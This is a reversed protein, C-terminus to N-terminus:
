KLSVPRLVRMAANGLRYVMYGQLATETAKGAIKLALNPVNALTDGAMETISDIGGEAVDGIMGSFYTNAIVHAMLVLNKDWSPKLSYIELLEKLLALSSSLVILRDMLPFPSIGAMLGANASYKVIRKKAVADLTDQFDRQFSLLWDQSTGSPSKADAILRKRVSELTAIQEVSMGLSKFFVADIRCDRELYEGLREVAERNVKLSLTRLEKREELATIAKIKVQPSVRLRYMLVLLKLVIWLIVGGFLVLPLSLVIQESLTLMRVNALFSALQTVLFFVVFAVVCVIALRAAACLGQPIFFSDALVKDALQNEDCEAHTQESAVSKLESTDVSKGRTVRRGVGSDGGRRASVPVAVAEATGRDEAHATESIRWSDVESSTADVSALTTVIEESTAVVEESKAVTEASRENRVHATELVRRPEVDMQPVSVPHEAVVGPREVNEHIPEPVTARCERRLLSRTM